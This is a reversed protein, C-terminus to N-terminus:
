KLTSLITIVKRALSTQLQFPNALIGIPHKETIVVYGHYGDLIILLMMEALNLFNTSHGTKLSSQQVNKSRLSSQQVYFIGTLVKM